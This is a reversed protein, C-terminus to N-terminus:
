VGDKWGRMMCWGEVGEDYVLKEYGEDCLVRGGRMACWGELGEDYM